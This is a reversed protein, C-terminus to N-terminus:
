VSLVGPKDSRQVHEDTDLYTDAFISDLAATDPKMLAAVWKNELDM